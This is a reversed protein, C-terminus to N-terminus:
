YPVTPCLDGKKNSFVNKTVPEVAEEGNVQMKSDGVGTSENGTNSSYTFKIISYNFILSNSIISTTITLKNLLKLLLLYYNFSTLFLFFCVNTITFFCYLFLYFVCPLIKKSHSNYLAQLLIFFACHPNLKFFFRIYM